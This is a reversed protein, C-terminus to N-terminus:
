ATREKRPREPAAAHDKHLIDVNEPLFIEEVRKNLVKAIAMAVDIPPMQKGLEIRTYATREIGVANAVQEQTMGAKKRAVLLELRMM